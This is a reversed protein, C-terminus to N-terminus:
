VPRHAGSLPPRHSFPPDEPLSRCPHLGFGSPHLGFGRTCAELPARCGRREDWPALTKVLSARAAQLVTPIAYVAKVKYDDSGMLSNNNANNNRM